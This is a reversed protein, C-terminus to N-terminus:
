MQISFLLLVVWSDIQLNYEPSSQRSLRICSVNLTAILPLCSFTACSSIFLPCCILPVTPGAAPVWSQVILHLCYLLSVDISSLVPLLWLGIPWEFYVTWSSLCNLSPLVARSIFKCHCDLICCLRLHASQVLFPRYNLFVIWFILLLWVFSLCVLIFMCPVMLGQLDHYLVSLRKATLLCSLVHLDCHWGVFLLWGFVCWFFIICGLSSRCSLSPLDADCDLLSSAARSAGEFESPTPLDQAASFFSIICYNFFRSPNAM